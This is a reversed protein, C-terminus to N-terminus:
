GPASGLSQQGSGRSSRLVGPAEVALCGRSPHSGCGSETLSSLNLDVQLQGTSIAHLAVPPKATTTPASSLRLPTWSGRSIRHSEGCCSVNRSGQRRTLWLRAVRTLSLEEILFSGFSESLDQRDAASGPWFGRFRVKQGFGTFAM